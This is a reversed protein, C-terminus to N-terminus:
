SKHSEIIAEYLVSARELVGARFRMDGDTLTLQEIPTINPMCELHAIREAAGYSYGGLDLLMSIANSWQIEVTKGFILIKPSANKMIENIIAENQFYTMNQLSKVIEAFKETVTNFYGSSKVNKLRELIEMRENLLVNRRTEYATRDIIGDIMSDTLRNERAEVQKLQLHLVAASSNETNQLDTEVQSFVERLFKELLPPTPLYSLSVRLESTIYEENICSGICSTNRCRYYAFNGQTEVTMYQGCKGCNVLGRYKYSKGRWTRKASVLKGEARARCEDYLAKSILPKHKGQYLIGKIEIVGYYFKNRLLKGLSGTHFPKNHQNRLGRKSMEARLRHLGYNGSAYLEFAQCVLAGQVPDITKLNGKGNNIYGVPANFPYIGQKIRGYLGKKVEERLNRIFDAAVVAQIDASLRGGRSSLDLAEHAFHVDVGGDMLAGLEAWDSLNRASRDVKHIILGFARGKKIDSLMRRFVTRGQKAATEQEEFWASITLHNKEDYNEISARQEQLSSGKEGQKITSVRIYAFYNKM